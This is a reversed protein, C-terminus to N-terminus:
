PPCRTSTSEVGMANDCRTAGQENYRITVMRFLCSLSAANTADLPLAASRSGLAGGLSGQAAVATQACDAQNAVQRPKDTVDFRPALTRIPHPGRCCNPFQAATAVARSITGHRAGELSHHKDTEIVLEKRNPGHRSGALALAGCSCSDRGSM